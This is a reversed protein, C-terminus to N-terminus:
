GTIGFVRFETISVWTTASTAYGNVRVYRAEEGGIDYYEMNETTGTSLGSFVKKWNEGDDSIYIELDAQREMGLYWALGVAGIKKKEGLDYVTYCPGQCSWRTNLDDDWMNSACNAEQPEDSVTISKFPLLELNDPKETLVSRVFNVTYINQASSEGVVIYAPDTTKEAQYVKASSDNVSIQPIEQSGLPLVYQYTSVDKRFNEIPKGDAYIMDVVALNQKEYYSDDSLKWDSIPTFQPIDYLAPMGIRKPVFAVAFSGSKVEGFKFSLRQIDKVALQGTLAASESGPLAEPAMIEFQGPTDTLIHVELQINDKTFVASRKDESLEIDASTHISWLMENTIDKLDYEDQVVFVNRENLLRVGRKYSNVYNAWVDKLDVVAYADVKNSQFDTINAGANVIQGLSDTTPNFCLLNHGLVSNRYKLMGGSINYDDKGLDNVFRKGLADLIFTGSDLQAHTDYNLGGHLGIFDAATEDWSNRLTVTEIRRWYKDLSLESGDSGINNKEFYDKALIYDRVQEPYTNAAHNNIFREAIDFIEPSNYYETLYFICDGGTVFGAEADSFNFAGGPGQVHFIFDMAMNVGPNNGIGYDTGASTMFGREMGAFYKMMYGWYGSGEYWAGDPMFGYFVDQIDQVVYGIIEEAEARSEDDTCLALAAVAVGGDIITSWNHRMDMLRWAYSRDLPDDTRKGLGKSYSIELIDNRYHQFCSRKIGEIVKSRQEPTMANYFADYGLGAGYAGEGVELMHYQNWDPWAKEDCFNVLEAIGREAYKQEGSILYVLAYRVITYQVDQVASAARVADNMKFNTCPKTLEADCRRKVSLYWDTVPQENAAIAKRMIEIQDKTAFVRPHETGHLKLIDAAIERGSPLYNNVQKITAYLTKSESNWDYFQSKDGIVAFGIPDSQVDKGLLDALAKASIYGVGNHNVISTGDSSSANKGNIEATIAKTEDNYSIKGGLKEVIYRAPIYFGNNDAFTKAPMKEVKADIFAKDANNYFFLVDRVRERVKVISMEDTKSASREEKTMPNENSHIVFNDMGFVVDTCGSKIDQIQPRIRGIYTGTFNVMSCKSAVLEDDFYMDYTHKKLNLVVAVHYFTNEEIEAVAKAGEDTYVTYGSIKLPTFYQYNEDYIFFMANALPSGNVIMFDGEFIVKDGKYVTSMMIDTYPSKQSTAMNLAIAGYKNGGKSEERVEIKNGNPYSYGSIWTGVSRLEFNEEYINEAQASYGILTLVFILAICLKKM